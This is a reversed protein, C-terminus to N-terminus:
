QVHRKLNRLVGSSLCRPRRQAKNYGMPSESLEWGPEEDVRTGEVGM